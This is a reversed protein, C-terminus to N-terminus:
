AQDYLWNLSAEMMWYPAEMRWYPFLTKGIMSDTSERDHLLTKGMMASNELAVVFWGPFCTQLNKHSGKGKHCHFIGSMTSM